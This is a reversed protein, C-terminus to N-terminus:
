SINKEAYEATHKTFYSSHGESALDYGKGDIECYLEEPELKTLTGNIVEGTDNVGDTFHLCVSDGVIISEANM